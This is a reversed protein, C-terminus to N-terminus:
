QTINDSITEYLGDAGASLFFPRHNSGAVTRAIGDVNGAYGEGPILLLPRHWADLLVTSTVERPTGPEITIASVSSAPLKDMAAKNAPVNRIERWALVTNRLADDTMPLSESDVFDPVAVATYPYFWSRWFAGRETSHTALTGNAYWQAPTVIAITGTPGAVYRTELRTLRM